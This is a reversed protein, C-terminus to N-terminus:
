RIDAHCARCETPAIWNHPAHCDECAAVRRHTIGRHFPSLEEPSAHCGSTTCSRLAADPSEQQHPNHCTGCVGGHPDNRIDFREIIREMQHCSECRETGPRFAAHVSDAPAREGVAASFDHCTLCHFSKTDSAMQGLVIRTDATEHCGAAGCTEQAPVFRHVERGHCSVCQVDALASDRSELHVRHGATASIREWTEQPDDDIHCSTCVQDPVPAHEGIEGPREKVWLYLQRLSASLPQQHCDHCQLEAHESEVFRSAAPDMVHCGVCFDNEHQIYAWSSVGFTAGLTAIGAATALLFARAIPSRSTLWARLALRRKWLLVFVLLVCAVGLLFGGIQIWQPVHFLFRVVAGVGGPLPSTLSDPIEQISGIVLTQAADAM